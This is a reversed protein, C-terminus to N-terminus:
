GQQSIRQPTCICLSRGLPLCSNRIHCSELIGLCVQSIYSFLYHTLLLFRLHTFPTSLFSWNFFKGYPFVKGSSCDAKSALRLSFLLPHVLVLCPPKVAVPNVSFYLYSLLISVEKGAQLAQLVPLVLLM